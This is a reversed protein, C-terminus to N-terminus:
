PHRPPATPALNLDALAAAGRAAHAGGALVLTRASQYRCGATDFADATALLRERDNDLLAQAREVIATAVPNGAVVTRAEALRDGADSSGAHGGAPLLRGLFLTM